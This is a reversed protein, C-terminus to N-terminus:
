NISLFILMSVLSRHPPSTTDTYVIYVIYVIYVNDERDRQAPVLHQVDGRTQIFRSFHVPLERQTQHGDPHHNVEADPLSDFGGPLYCVCM